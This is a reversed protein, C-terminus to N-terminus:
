LILTRLFAKIVDDKIFAKRRVNISNFIILTIGAIILLLFVTFFTPGLNSWAAVFLNSDQAMAKNVLMTPSFTAYLLLLCAPIRLTCPKMTRNMAILYNSFYSFQHLDVLIQQIIIPATKGTTRYENKGM